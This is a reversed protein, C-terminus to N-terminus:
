FHTAIAAGLASLVFRALAWARGGASPKLYDHPPLTPDAPFAPAPTGSSRRRVPPAGVRRTRLLHSHGAAAGKALVSKRGAPVDGNSIPPTQAGPDICCTRARTSGKQHIRSAPQALTGRPGDVACRSGRWARFPAVTTSLPHPPARIKKKTRRPPGGGGGAARRPRQGGAPPPGRPPPPLSRWGRSGAARQRM